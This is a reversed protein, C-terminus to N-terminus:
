PSILRDPQYPKLLQNRQDSLIEDAGFAGIAPALTIGSHTVAVYLWEISSMRGVLPFGDEPMPRYGIAFRELELNEAGHLFRSIKQIESLAQEEPSKEQALDTAIIMRGSSDQRLEMGPAIIMTNLLQSIPKSYVVLAASPKLPLAIGISKLLELSGVGAAIVVEDAEMLGLDTQVGIVRGSRMELGRV